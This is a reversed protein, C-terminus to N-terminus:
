FELAKVKVLLCMNLTWALLSFFLPPSLVNTCNLVYKGPREERVRSSQNPVTTILTAKGERGPAPAEDNLSLVQRIVGRGYTLTCTESYIRLPTLSIIYITYEGKPIGDFM